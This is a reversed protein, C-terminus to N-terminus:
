PGCPPGLSDLLCQEADSCLTAHDFCHSIAQRAAPTLAGLSPCAIDVNQGMSKCEGRRAECSLRLTAGDPYTKGATEECSTTYPIKCALQDELCTRQREMFDPEFVKRYCPLFKACSSLRASKLEPSKTCDTSVISEADAYLDCYAEEDQPNGYSWPTSGSSSSSSTSSSTSSSGTTSTSSSAATSGDSTDEESSCALFSVSILATAAVCLLRLSPRMGDVTDGAWSGDRTVDIERGARTM